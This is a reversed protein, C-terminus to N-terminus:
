YSLEKLIIPKYAPEMEFCFNIFHFKNLKVKFNVTKFAKNKKPKIQGDIAKITRDLRQVAVQSFLSVSVQEDLSKVKFGFLIRSKEKMLDNYRM